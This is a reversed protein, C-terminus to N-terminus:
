CADIIFDHHFKFDGDQVLTGTTVNLRVTASKKTCKGSNETCLFLESQLQLFRQGVSSDLPLKKFFTIKIQGEQIDGKKDSM